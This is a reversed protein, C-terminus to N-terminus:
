GVVWCVLWGSVVWGGARVFVPVLALERSPEGYRIVMASLSNFLHKHLDGFLQLQSRAVLDHARLCRILEVLMSLLSCFVFCAEMPQM